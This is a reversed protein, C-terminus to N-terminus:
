VYHLSCSIQVMELAVNIYVHLTVIQNNYKPINRMTLYM